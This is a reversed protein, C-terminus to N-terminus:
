SLDGDASLLEATPAAIEQPQPSGRERKASRWPMTRTSDIQDPTPFESGHFHCASRTISRNIDILLGQLPLRVPFPVNPFRSEWSLCNGMFEHHAGAWTPKRWRGSLNESIAAPGIGAQVRIRFLRFLRLIRQLRGTNRQGCHTRPQKASGRPPLRHNRENRLMLEPRGHGAIPNQRGRNRQKRLSRGPPSASRPRVRSCVATRRVQPQIPEQMRDRPVNRCCEAALYGPNVGGYGAGGRSEASLRVRVIERMEEDSIVTSGLTLLHKGNGANDCSILLYKVRDLVYLIIVKLHRQRYQTAGHCKLRVISESVLQPDHTVYVESPKLLSEFQRFGIKRV